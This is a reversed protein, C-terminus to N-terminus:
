YYDCAVYFYEKYEELFYILIRLLESNVYDDADVRIIYKGKANKIGLNSSFAVGHNKKNEIIKLNKFYPKHQKAIKISNDTSCDDVFIIEYDNNSLTQNICSRLCTSLYKGYNYNTIIISALMKLFKNQNSIM